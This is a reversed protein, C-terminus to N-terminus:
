TMPRSRMRVARLPNNPYTNIRLHLVDRAPVLMDENNIMVQYFVSGDEPEIMVNYTQVWLTSVVENRDNRSAVAVANGKEMLLRIGLSWFEAMTQFHNPQEIWRSLASTTVDEWGGSELRRRHHMPMLIFASVYASVAAHLAAVGLGNPVRLNRQFGDEWGGLLFSNGFEGIGYFPGRPHGENVGDLGFWSKVRTVLGRKDM